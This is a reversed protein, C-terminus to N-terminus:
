TRTLWRILEATPFTRHSVLPSSALLSARTHQRAFVQALLRHDLVLVDDAVQLLTSSRGEALAWDTHWNVQHLTLKDIILPTRERAPWSPVHKLELWGCVPKMSPYRRLLYNVDPMGPDTPNEVRKLRGHPGLHLRTRAWLDSESM